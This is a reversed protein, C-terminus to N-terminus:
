ICTNSDSFLSLICSELDGDEFSIARFGEGAGDEEVIEEEAPITQSLRLGLRRCAM